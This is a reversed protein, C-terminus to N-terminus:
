RSQIEINEIYHCLEKLCNELGQRDPIKALMEMQEGWLGLPPFGYSEAVGRLKHGCIELSKFDGEGLAKEWQPLEKRKRELFGEALEKLDPDVQIILSPSTAIREM